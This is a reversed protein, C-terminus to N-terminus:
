FMQTLAPIFPALLSMHNAASMIFIKYKGIFTPKGKNEKLDFLQKLLKQNNKIQESIVKELQEFVKEPTNTVNNISDDISNINVKSNSKVKCQYGEFGAHNSFYRPDIVITREIVGISSKREIIDNKEVSIKEDQIFIIDTQANAKINVFVRGDQKILKVKDNYDIM